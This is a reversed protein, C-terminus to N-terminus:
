HFTPNLTILEQHLQIKSALKMEQKEQKKCRWQLKGMPHKSGVQLVWYFYRYKRATREWEKEKSM